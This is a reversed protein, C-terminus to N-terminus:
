ANADTPKLARMELWRHYKQRVIGLYKWAAESVDANMKSDSRTLGSVESLYMDRFSYTAIDAIAEYANRDVAARRLTRWLQTAVCNQEGNKVTEMLVM